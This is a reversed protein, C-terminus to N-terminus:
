ICMNYKLTELDSEYDAVEFVGLFYNKDIYLSKQKCLDTM